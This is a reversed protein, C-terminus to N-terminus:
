IPTSTTSGGSQVGGHIHTQLSITGAVVDQTTTIGGTVTVNGVIAVGSGSITVSKGGTSMAIQSATVEIESGGVTVVHSTGNTLVTVNEGVVIKLWGGSPFHVESVDPDQSPSPYDSKYISGGLVVGSAPDGGPSLIVVQEGTAPPNWTRVNGARETMWPLWATQNARAEPGFQVKVRAKELDVALIKGVRVLSALRRTVDSTEPSSM